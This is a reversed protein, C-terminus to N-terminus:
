AQSYGGTLFDLKSWGQFFGGVYTYGLYNCMVTVLSPHAVFSDHKWAEIENNIGLYFM